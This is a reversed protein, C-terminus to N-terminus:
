NGAMVSEPLHSLDARIWGDYSEMKNSIAMTRNILDQVDGLMERTKAEQAYYDAASKAWEVILMTPETGLGGTYVRYGSPINKSSYLDKWEKGIATAEEWKDPNVFFYSFRRYNVGEQVIEDSNYSLDHNLSVVYDKHTTFTGDYKSMLKGFNEEGMAEVVPQFFNSDLAAMNAIPSVFLYRMDDLSVTLYRSGETSHEGFAEKLAKCADEYEKVMNPKVLDEHVVYMQTKAEQAQSSYALAMLFLACGLTSLLKVSLKM